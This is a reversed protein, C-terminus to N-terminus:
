PTGLTASFPHFQEFRRKFYFRVGYPSWFFELAHTPINSHERDMNCLKSTMPYSKIGRKLATIHYFHYFNCIDTCIEYFKVKLASKFLELTQSSPISPKPVILSWGSAIPYSYKGRKSPLHGSFCDFVCNWSLMQGQLGIQSIGFGFNSYEFIVWRNSVM